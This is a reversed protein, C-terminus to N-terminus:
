FFSKIRYVMVNKYSLSLKTILSTIYTTHSDFGNVYVYQKRNMLYSKLLKNISGRIGYYNGYNVYSSTNIFQQLRVRHISFLVDIYISEVRMCCINCTSYRLAGRQAWLDKEYIDIIKGLSLFLM